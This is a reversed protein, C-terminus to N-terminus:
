SDQIGKLTSHVRGGVSYVGTNMNHRFSSGRIIIGDGTLVTKEPCRITGRIGDYYLLETKMVYKENKNTIVVDERLELVKRGANYTGSGAVINTINGKDDTIDATVDLLIYENPRHSSLAKDALIATTETGKEAQKITVRTMTFNHESSRKQIYEPDYGGRPALFSSLPIKWLPFTIILLFPVMWLANRPNIM